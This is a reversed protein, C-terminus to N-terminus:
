ANKCHVMHIHKPSFFLLVNPQLTRASFKQSAQVKCDLVQQIVALKGM